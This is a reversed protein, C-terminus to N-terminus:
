AIGETGRRVRLRNEVEEVGPCAAVLDELRHKEPRSGVSGDLSARGDQVQINLDDTDATVDGVRSWIDDLIRDDTRRYGKPFIRRETEQHARGYQGALGFQNGIGYSRRDFGPHDAQGAQAGQAHEPQWDRPRGSHGSRPNRPDPHKYQSM